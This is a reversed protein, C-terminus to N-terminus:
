KSVYGGFPQTKVKIDRRPLYLVMWEGSQDDRIIGGKTFYQKGNSSTMETKSDFNYEAFPKKGKKDMIRWIGSPKGNSFSGQKIIKGKSNYYTWTGIPKGEKFEATLKLKGHFHFLEYTGDLRGTSYNAKRIITGKSNKSVWTGDRQGSEFQGSEVEVGNSVVKYSGDTLTEICNCHTFKNEQALCFTTLLAISITLITKM